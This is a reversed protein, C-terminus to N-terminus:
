RSYCKVIGQSQNMRDEFVGGKASLIVKPDSNIAQIAAGIGGCGFLGVRLNSKLASGLVHSLRFGYAFGRGILMSRSFSRCDRSHGSTTEKM